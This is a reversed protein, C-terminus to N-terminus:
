NGRFAGAACRSGNRQHTRVRRASTREGIGQAPPAVVLQPLQQSAPGVKRRGDRRVGSHQRGPGAGPCRDDAGDVPDVEEEQRHQLCDDDGAWRGRDARDRGQHAGVLRDHAVPDLRQAATRKDPALVQRHLRDAGHVLAQPWM